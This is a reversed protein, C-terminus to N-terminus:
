ISTLNALVFRADEALDFAPITGPGNRTNSMDHVLKTTPNLFNFGVDVVATNAGRLSAGLVSREARSELM